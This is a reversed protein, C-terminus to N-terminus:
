MGKIMRNYIEKDYGGWKIEEIVMDGRWYIKEVSYGELMEGLRKLIEGLDRWTERNDGLLM